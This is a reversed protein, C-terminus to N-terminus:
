ENNFIVMGAFVLGLGIVHYGRLVEDLLLIALVSAFVPTLNIFLGARNAGILEIGRNWCFYAVISPFVAIYLINLVSIYGIAFTGVTFLEYLYLPLLIATGWGFTITLFSLPHIAPRKRLLVSYFAYCLVAVLMLVDGIVFSMSLLTQWKGRLLIVFAGGISLMVGTLQIPSIRERFLVLSILIIMAPMTIQMLAINIATTSHAATYLLTNFCTVGLFSLVLMWKWSQLATQWDQKVQRRTFIFLIAFAVAWRWFALSIPPVITAIGRAVVANGAWCLPPITLLFYPGLAAYRRRPPTPPPPNPSEM